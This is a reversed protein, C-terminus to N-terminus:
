LLKAPYAVIYKGFNRVSFGQQEFQSLRSDKNELLYIAHGDIRDVDFTFVYRDFEHVYLFASPFNIYRVTSLYSNLDVKGYFLVRPYSVNPDVYIKGGPKVLSQAFDMAEGVGECFNSAIQDKYTTFYSREFNAFSLLYAVLPVYIMKPHIYSFALVIGQAAMVIMPIFILNVRNVNVSILVGIAFAALLWALMFVSLGLKRARVDRVAQWINEVLGVFFFALTVPYFLGFNHIYNWPLGDSQNKLINWLNMFNEPIKQFSIESARFYVLKPISIFPLRIENIVDKNVLMFLMLPLALVVLVGLSIWTYRNNHISKTWLGYLVGMLVIFPVAIWITAYAYLSLGYCVASAVLFKPKELGKVFFFLGFLVFGPALNSELAWRSLMVHWPSIALLLTAALAMCESSFRRVLYYVAVLSLLGVLLMPLRIVWVHLGFIAVFPIMLYSELANMGSGWATLYVPLRYGYSDTAHLLLTYANYGAFAEDQNIDGPVSGFMYVRAFVGLLLVIVLTIQAANIRAFVKKVAVVSKLRELVKDM